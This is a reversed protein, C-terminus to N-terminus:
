CSQSSHAPVIHGSRGAHALAVENAREPVRQHIRSPAHQERAAALDHLAQLCCTLLQSQWLLEGLEIAEVQQDQVIQAVHPSNSSM